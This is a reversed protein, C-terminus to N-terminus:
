VNTVRVVGLPQLVITGATGSTYAELTGKAKPEVGLLRMEATVAQMVCPSEGLMDVILYAVDNNNNVKEMENCAVVRGNPYTKKFWDLVTMTGLANMTTILANYATPAIGLVFGDTNPNFNSGTQSVLTTIWLNIRGVITLFDTGALPAAGTEAIYGGLNPDNFLGYTPATPNGFAGNFGLFAILNQNVAFARALAARREDDPSIAMRAARADSLTGSQMGLEFRVNQRREFAFNYSALPVDSDDAYPRVQGTHEVTKAVIEEDEWSGLITRGLLQDASRASTLVEVAKPMWYQLFQVPAGVTPITVPVPAADMAMRVGDHDCDASFGLAALEEPKFGDFSTVKKIQNAKLSLHIKSAKM